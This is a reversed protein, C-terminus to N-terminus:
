LRVMEGTAADVIMFTAKDCDTAWKEQMNYEEKLTLQESCTAELLEAEQMWEHYRCISFGDTGYGCTM